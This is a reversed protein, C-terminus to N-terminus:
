WGNGHYDIRVGSSGIEEREDAQQCVATGLDIGPQVTAADM